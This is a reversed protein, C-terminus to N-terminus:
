RDVVSQTDVGSHGEHVGETTRLVDERITLRDGFKQASIERSPRRASIERRDPPVMAIDKRASQKQTSGIRRQGISGNESKAALPKAAGAGGEISETSGGATEREPDSEEVCITRVAFSPDPRKASRIGTAVKVM